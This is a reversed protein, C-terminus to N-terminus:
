SKILHQPLAFTLTSKMKLQLFKGLAFLQVVTLLLFDFLTPIHADVDVNSKCLINTQNFQCKRPIGHQSGDHM